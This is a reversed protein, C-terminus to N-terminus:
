FYRMCHIYVHMAASAMDGAPADAFPQTHGQAHLRELVHRRVRLAEHYLADGHKWEKVVGLPEGQTQGATIDQFAKDKDITYSHFSEDHQVEPFALLLAGEKQDLLHMMEACTDRPAAHLVSAVVLPLTLIVVPLIPSKWATMCLGRRLQDVTEATSAQLTRAITSQEACGTRGFARQVAPDLRITGNSQAITKAGCLIGLLGDLVKEVPRYRVM